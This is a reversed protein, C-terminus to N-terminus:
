ERELVEIAKEMKSGRSGKLLLTDGAKVYAKLIAGLAESHPAWFIKQASLGEATAGEVYFQSLEGCCFVADVRKQAVAAGLSRHASEAYDGLELMEGLVAIHRQGATAMLTNLGMEMSEPNANYTDDLLTHQTQPLVRHYLRGSPPLVTSLGLAAEDLSVGCALAVTMAAAANWSNHLGTLPLPIEFHADGHALSLLMGNETLQSHRIQIDAMSSKGFQLIKARPWRKSQKICRPDDANVILTGGTQALVEYLEGKAEAVGSVGGLNGAHASGINTIVGVHPQAIEALRKIEGLHNMGMELIAFQHSKQTQLASLPLGIHNNFNGVNAHVSGVGAPKELASKILEKTTTKGNSGTVAIRLAPLQELHSKALEQLAILTDKVLIVRDSADEYAPLLRHVLAAQAGKALMQAVFDHGDFREGALAVFLSEDGAKRSDTEVRSCEIHAPV